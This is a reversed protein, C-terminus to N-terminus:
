SQDAVETGKQKQNQHSTLVLEPEPFNALAPALATKDPKGV